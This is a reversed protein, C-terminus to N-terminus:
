ALLATHMLLSPPIPPSLSSTPAASPSSVCLREDVSLAVLSSILSSVFRLFRIIYLRKERAAPKGRRRSEDLPACMELDQQGPIADVVEASTLHAEREDEHVDNRLLLAARSM